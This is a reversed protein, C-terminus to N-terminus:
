KMHPKVFQDINWIAKQYFELFEVPFWKVDQSDIGTDYIKKGGFFLFHTARFDGMSIAAELYLGKNAKLLNILDSTSMRNRNGFIM